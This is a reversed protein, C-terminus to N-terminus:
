RCASPRYKAPVTGGNCTWTIASGSVTGHFVLTANTQVKKNYVVTVLSGNVAIRDVANGFIQNSPAVGLAANDIPWTNETMYHESVANKVLTGLNVGETVHTRKAYDQYAPFAIASLIGVIGIVILLEILTFGTQHNPSSVSM